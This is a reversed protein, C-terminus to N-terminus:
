QSPEYSSNPLFSFGVVGGEADLEVQFLDVLRGGFLEGRHTIHLSELLSVAADREIEAARAEEDTQKVLLVRITPGTLGFNLLLIAKRDLVLSAILM